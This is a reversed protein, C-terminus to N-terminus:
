TSSIYKVAGSGCDGVKWVAYEMNTGHLLITAPKLDHHFGIRPITSMEHTSNRRQVEDDHLYRVADCLGAVQELM